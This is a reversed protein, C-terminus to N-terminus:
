HKNNFIITYTFWGNECMCEGEAGYNIIIERINRMGIGHERKNSKNTEVLHNKISVMEKVRNSVVLVFTEGSYVMKVKVIKDQKNELKKCAEIANELLNSLLIVAAEDPLPFRDLRDLNMVFTINEQIAERFKQNLIIDVVDNGTKVSTDHEISKECISKVYKLAEESKGEYLLGHICGMHNKFEHTRKRQERYATEMSNYIQLQGKAREQKLQYEQNEQEKDVIDRMTFYFMANLLMIIFSILLVTVNHYGEDLWLTLLAVITIMSFILFRFWNKGSIVYLKREPAFIRHLLTVLLFEIMRTLIVLFTSYIDKYVSHEWKWVMISEWIITFIIDWVLLLGEYACVSVMIKWIGARYRSWMFLTDAILVTAIKVALYDRLVHVCIFKFGICAAWAAVCYMLNQIKKKPFFISVFVDCSITEMFLFLLTSVVNWM